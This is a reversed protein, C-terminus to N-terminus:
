LKLIIKIYKYNCAVSDKSAAYYNIIPMNPESFSNRGASSGKKLTMIVDNVILIKLSASTIVNTPMKQVSPAEARIECLNNFVM